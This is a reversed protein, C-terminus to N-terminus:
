QMKLKAGERWVQIGPMADKKEYSLAVDGLSLFGNEVLFNSKM